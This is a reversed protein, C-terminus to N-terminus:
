CNLPRRWELPWGQLWTRQQLCGVAVELLGRVNSHIAEELPLGRCGVCAAVTVASGGVAAADPGHVGLDARAGHDDPVVVVLGGECEGGGDLVIGFLCVGAGPTRRLEALALKDADLRAHSVESRPSHGGRCCNNILKVTELSPLYQSLEFTQM